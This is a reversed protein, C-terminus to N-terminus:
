QQSGTGGTGQGQGRWCDIRERTFQFSVNDPYLWSFPAVYNRRSLAVSVRYSSPSLWHHSLALGWQTVSGTAQWCLLSSTVSLDCTSNFNNGNFYRRDGGLPLSVAAVRLWSGPIFVINHNCIIKLRKKTNRWLCSIMKDRRGGRSQWQWTGVWVM